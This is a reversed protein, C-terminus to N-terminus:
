FGKTRKQNQEKIRKKLDKQLFERYEVGVKEAIKNDKFILWVDADADM